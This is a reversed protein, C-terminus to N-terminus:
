VARATHLRTVMPLRLTGGHDDIAARVAELLRARRDAELLQFDSLTTLLATYDDASYDQGWTYIRVEPHSFEPVAAIEAPWDDDGDPAPNDPHMSGDIPRHGESYTRLIQQEEM